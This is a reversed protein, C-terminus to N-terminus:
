PQTGLKPYDFFLLERQSPFFDLWRETNAKVAFVACTPM